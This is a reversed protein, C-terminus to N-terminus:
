RVLCVCMCASVAYVIKVELFSHSLISYVCIHLVLRVRPVEVGHQAPQQMDLVTEDLDNPATENPGFTVIFSEDAGPTERFPDVM